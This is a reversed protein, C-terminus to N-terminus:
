SGPFHDYGQVGTVVDFSYEKSDDITLYGEESLETQSISGGTRGTLDDLSKRHSNSHIYIKTGSKILKFLNLKNIIKLLLNKDASGSYEVDVNTMKDLRKAVKERASKEAWYKRSEKEYFKGDKTLYSMLKKIVAIKDDEPIANFSEKDVISSIKNILRSMVDDILIPDTKLLRRFKDFYWGTNDSPSETTIGNSYPLINYTSKISAENVSENKKKIVEFEENLFEENLFKENLFEDYTPLNKM